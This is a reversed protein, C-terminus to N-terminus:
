TNINTYRSKRGGRRRPFQSFFSIFFLFIEVLGPGPENLHFSIRNGCAFETASIVIEKKKKKADVDAHWNCSRTM